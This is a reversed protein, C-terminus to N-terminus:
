LLCPCIKLRELLFLCHYMNWKEVNKRGKEQKNLNFEVKEPLHKQKWHVEMLELRSVLDPFMVQCVKAGGSDTGWNSLTPESDNRNAEDIYM